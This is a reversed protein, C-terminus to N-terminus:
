SAVERGFFYGPHEASPGSCGPRGQGGGCTAPL